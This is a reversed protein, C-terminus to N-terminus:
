SEVRLWQCLLQSPGSSFPWCCSMSGAQDQNWKTWGIILATLVATWGDSGCIELNTENQLPFHVSLGPNLRAEFVWVRDKHMQKNTPKKEEPSSVLASSDSWCLEYSWLKKKMRNRRSDILNRYNFKRPKSAPITCPRHSSVSTADECISWRRVAPRM